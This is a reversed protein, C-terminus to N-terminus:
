NKWIHHEFMTKLNHLLLNDMYDVTQIKEFRATVLRWLVELDEKDFFKLMKSFTLYMQSNGDVRFIQFYSKKWEKHIKYDFITLSKSSLPTADITVDDEDDPIIELCQKLEESEKDDKMKQKKANEQELEEGARKSSGETVKAKAKKPSELVLETRYDVFTNVMKMSMINRQQARTPPRNRKEEDRKAACLKKRKELFQMFLKAKVADTLEKQEEAQLRQALEYDADIKAQADDWAINVEKIQQAKERYIREKEEEEKAQLKIQSPQQSSLKPKTEEPEYFVIGKAKAKPKTHKLEVLAQALTVEDTSITATTTTAAAVNVENLSVEQSVFVEEGRLDDAVDFLMDADEQDNIRGQNEATDDILTIGEDSDIDDIKREQKSADEGLGEDKSSEVRALLRVKYLIKLGHTRSMKRRELKNVRRKLNTIKLTQTTKTTELDLVRTQAITDGM